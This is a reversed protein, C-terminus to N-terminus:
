ALLFWVAAAALLSGVVVGAIIEATHMDSTYDTSIRDEEALDFPIGDDEIM